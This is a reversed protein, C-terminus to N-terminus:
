RGPRVAPRFREYEMEAAVADAAGASWFREVLWLALDLGSTVGGSTVLDGEDVVRDHTVTAGTLALDARSRHHTSARRKGVIGAAALLLAGTCVSAMVAGEAHAAALLPLWTGRRVEGWTGTDSRSAWGGGPVVVVEAGAMWSGDLSVRLGHSGVVQAVGDLGVLRTTFPAGGAEASRLVELPGLADLEDMGDFAM